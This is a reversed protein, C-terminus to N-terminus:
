PPQCESCWSGDVKRSFRNEEGHTWLHGDSVSCYDMKWRPSWPRHHLSHRKGKIGPAMREWKPWARWYKSNNDSGIKWVPTWMHDREFPLFHTNFPIINKPRGWSLVILNDCFKSGNIAFFFNVVELFYDFKPKKESLTSEIQYHKGGRKQM